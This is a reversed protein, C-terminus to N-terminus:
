SSNWSEFLKSTSSRNIIGERLAALDYEQIVKRALDGDRDWGTSIHKKIFEIANQIQQLVSGYFEMDDKAIIKETGNWRTCSIFSNRNINQDSFLVAANTIKDNKILGFSILDKEIVDWNKEKKFYDKLVDFSVEEKNVDAYQEDWGINKGRLILENLELSNAEVDQDGKRVYSIRSGKNVYYYPTHNGPIVKVLIINKNKINVIDIIPTISPEIRTKIRNSIEEYSRKVNKIGVIKKTIDDIGFIIYGTDYGNAFSSVAKLYNKPEEFNVERKLEINYKEEQIIKEIEIYM